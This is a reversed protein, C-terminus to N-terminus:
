GNRRDLASGRLHVERHRRHSTTRVNAADQNNGLWSCCCWHLASCGCRLPCPRSCPFSLFTQLAIRFCSHTGGVIPSSFSSSSSSLQPPPLHPIIHYCNCDLM